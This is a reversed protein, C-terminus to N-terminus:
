NRSALPTEEKLYQDLFERIARYGKIRNEKKRFGHGEDEFLIYEVPIGNKRVAEVIDESEIQLVRPDNAGQLVMLPRQIQESYFLPSISYLYEEQTDPNGMEVYLAERFSEWWPPISKLTRVWNSIGFLNVGVAFETPQFALAALVMYGGYTGGLIAVRSTDVYGTSALYRKAYVCDLLDDAGHKQDDL